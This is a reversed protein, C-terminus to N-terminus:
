RRRPPRQGHLGFQEQKIFGEASKIREGAGIELVFDIPNALFFFVTMRIVLSGSSAMRRASRTMGSVAPGRAVRPGEIGTVMGRGRERVSILPLKSKLCVRLSTISYKRIAVSLRLTAM